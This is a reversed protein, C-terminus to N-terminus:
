RTEAEQMEQVMGSDGTVWIRTMGATPEAGVIRFGRNIIESVALDYPDGTGTLVMGGWTKDAFLSM